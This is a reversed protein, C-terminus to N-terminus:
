VSSPTLIQQLYFLLKSNRSISKNNKIAFEVAKIDGVIIVKKKARTVATYLLNKFLLPKHEMSVIIIVTDYESGQSKHVTLVYALEIEAIENIGTYVVRNGEQYEVVISMQEPNIDVIKGVDGNFVGKEYNNKTQIVIDDVRYVIDHIKICNPNHNIANQIINNLYKSSNYGKRKYPTLVILDNNNQKEHLYIDLVVDKIRDPPAPIFVFDKNNFTIDKENLINYANQVISSDGKQRFIENLKITKITNSYILDNLVNGAGVSPLQQHDGVLIIKTTNKLAKLFTYFTLIDVMSMEDIIIIDAEIPNNENRLTILDDDGNPRFELLRHITSASRQTVEEMRKAAKGTPACLAISADPYAIYMSEIIAKITTTKGTGPGGTLIFVKEDLARKIAEKQQESYPINLKLAIESIIEDAPKVPKFPFPSQLINKIKQASNKEAFYYQPLYVPMDADLQDNEEPIIKKECILFILAEALTKQPIYTKKNITTILESLYLFTHGFSEAQLKLTLLIITTIRRYDNKRYGFERIAIEDIISFDIGEELVLSYINEKLQQETYSQIIKNILKPSLQYKTFLSSINKSAFYKRIEEITEKRVMGELKEPYKELVEMINPYLNILREATKDGIGKFSKLFEKIYEKEIIQMRELKKVIIQYGYKQHFFWEGEINLIENKQVPLKSVFTYRVGNFQGVFTYFNSSQYIIKEVIVKQLFIM